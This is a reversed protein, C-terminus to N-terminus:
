RKATRGLCTYKEEQAKTECPLNLGPHRPKPRKNHFNHFPSHNKKLFRELRALEKAVTQSFNRRFARGLKAIEKRLEHSDHIWQTFEVPHNGFAFFDKSILVIANKGSKGLDHELDKKTKHLSHKVDRRRSYRGDPLEEYINDPRNRSYREGFQKTTISDSIRAWSSLRHGDDAPTVAIVVDGIKARRRITPKCLALSWVGGFVCPALGTDAPQVYIFTTM